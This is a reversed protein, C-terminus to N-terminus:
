SGGRELPTEGNGTNCIYLTPPGILIWLLFLQTLLFFIVFIRISVFTFAVKEFCAVIITRFPRVAIFPVRRIPSRYMRATQQVCYIRFQDLLGATGRDSLEAKHDTIFDM